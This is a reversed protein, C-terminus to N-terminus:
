HENKDMRLIVMDIGGIIKCRAWLILTKIDIFTGVLFTAIIRLCLSVFDYSYKEGFLKIM